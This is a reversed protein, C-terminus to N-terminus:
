KRGRLLCANKDDLPSLRILGTERIFIPFPLWVGVLCGPKEPQGATM